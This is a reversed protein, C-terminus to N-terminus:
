SWLLPRILTSLSILLFFSFFFFFIYAGLIVASALHSYEALNRAVYVGCRSALSIASAVRYLLSFFSFFLVTEGLNRVVCERCLTRPWCTIKKYFFWRFFFDSSHTYWSDLSLVILKLTVTNLAWQVRTWYPSVACTDLLPESCVHGTLAWQVRTWYPSV